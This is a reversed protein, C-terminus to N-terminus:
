TGLEFGAPATTFKNAEKEWEGLEFRVESSLASLQQDFLLIENRRPLRRWLETPRTKSLFHVFTPLPGNGEEWRPTGVPIQLFIEWLAFKEPSLWMSQDHIRAMIWWKFKIWGNEVAEFNGNWYFNFSAYFYFYIPRPNWTGPRRNWPCSQVRVLKILDAFKVGGDTPSHPFENM